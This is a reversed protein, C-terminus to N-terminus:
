KETRLSLIYAALDRIEKRTLHINPMPTHPEVLWNTLRETSQNPRNAISPFSPVDAPTAANAPEGILHCSACLKRAVTLGDDPNGFKPEAKGPEDRIFPQDAPEQAEAVIALAGLMVTSALAARLVTGIKTAVRIDGGAHFLARRKAM